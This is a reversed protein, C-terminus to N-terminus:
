ATLAYSETACLSPVCPLTRAGAIAGRAAEASLSGRGGEALSTELSVVISMVQPAIAEIDLTDMERQSFEHAGEVIRGQTESV